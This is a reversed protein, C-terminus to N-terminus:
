KGYSNWGKYYERESYLRRDTADLYKKAERCGQVFDPSGPSAKRGREECGGSPPRSRVGAWDEAGDRFKGYPLSTFWEEWRARDLVGAAFPAAGATLPPTLTLTSGKSSTSSSEKSNILAVAGGIVLLALFWKGGSSSRSVPRTPGLRLSRSSYTSPPSYVNTSPTPSTWTTPRFAATDQAAKAAAAAARAGDNHALYQFQSTYGQGFISNGQRGAEYAQKTAWYGPRSPDYSM